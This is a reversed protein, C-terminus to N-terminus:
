HAGLRILSEHSTVALQRATKQSMTDRLGGKYNLDMFKLRTPDYDGVLLNPCLHCIWQPQRMM